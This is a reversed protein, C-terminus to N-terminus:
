SYDSFYFSIKEYQLKPFFNAALHFFLGVVRTDRLANKLSPHTKKKKRKEHWSHIISDTWLRQCDVIKM